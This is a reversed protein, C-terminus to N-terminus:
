AARLFRRRAASLLARSYLDHFVLLLRYAATMVGSRKAGHTRPVIASGFFLRTRAGDDPRGLPVVMFWSRTAGGAPCMLLEDSTRGEVQWASYHDQRGDAMREADRDTARFGAAVRLLWRELKFLPTTYFATVYDALPVAGDIEVGYCDTFGGDGNAYADLLTRDPPDSPKAQFFM